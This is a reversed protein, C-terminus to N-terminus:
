PFLPRAWVQQRSWSIPQGVSRSKRLTPVISGSDLSRSRRVGGRATSVRPLRFDESVTLVFAWGEFAVFAPAAVIQPPAQSLL